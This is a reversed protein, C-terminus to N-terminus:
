ARVKQMGAHVGRAFFLRQAFDELDAANEPERSLIDRISNRLEAAALQYMPSAHLGQMTRLLADSSLSELHAALAVAANEPTAAQLYADNSTCPEAAM